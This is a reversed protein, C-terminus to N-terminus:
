PSTEVLHSLADLQQIYEAADAYRDDASKSLGREVLDDIADLAPLPQKTIESVLPPPTSVHMTLLTVLDNARFPLRGTLLEFLLVTAAYLDARGDVGQAIAQEPAIYAPTGLTMGAATLRTRDPGTAEEPLKAIGLDILKVVPDDGERVFLVNDSKVDRHVIGREHLHGLASVVQRTISLAQRVPLAGETIRDALNRGEILELAIWMAGPFEGHAYSRVFSEHYVLSMAVTERIFRSRLDQSSPGLYAIKVAVLEQTQVDEARHVVAMGGEGLRSILRYRGGIVEPTEVAVPEAEAAVPTPKSAPEPEPKPPTTLLDVFANRAEELLREFEPLAIGMAGAVQVPDNGELEVLTLMTRQQGSMQALADRVADAVVQKGGQASLEAPDLVRSRPASPPTEEEAENAIERALGLLWPQFTAVDGLEHLRGAARVFLRECAPEAEDPDSLLAALIRYMPIQYRRVLESFALADQGERYAEILAEDSSRIDITRSAVATLM